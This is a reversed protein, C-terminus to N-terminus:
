SPPKTGGKATEHIQESPDRGIIRRRRMLFIKGWGGWNGVPPANPDQPFQSQWGNPLPVGCSALKTLMWVLPINSLPRAKRFLGVQGGIDGHAGRFWVQEVHSHEEGKTSWLVPDYSARTEDLALAHFGNAVHPGIDHDHFEQADPMYRWLFPIKFGLAKVTDWAGIADIRTDPYCYLERFKEVYANQKGSRYYRYALRINRVTAHDSRLLGIRGIVGGLSRAAFAGRSYGLLVIRDGPHYRTALVGYARMIQENIGRGTMVDYTSRWDRWQIGAEYYVTVNAEHCVERLLKFTLGANTEFGPKMSSMTGDLIVVHLAPGRERQTVEEHRPRGKVLELIWERLAM